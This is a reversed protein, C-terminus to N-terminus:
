IQNPSMSSGWSFSAVFGVLCSSSNSLHLLEQQAKLKTFIHVLVVIGILIHHLYKFGPALVLKNQSTGCVYQAGDRGELKQM